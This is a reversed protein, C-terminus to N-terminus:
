PNTSDLASKESDDSICMVHLHQLDRTNSAPLILLPLACWKQACWLLSLLQLTLLLKWASM